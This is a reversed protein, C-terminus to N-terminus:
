AMCSPTCSVTPFREEPLVASGAGCSPACVFEAAAGMSGAVGLVCARLDRVQEVVTLADKVRQHELDLRKVSSSIRNATSSANSLMGNSIARTKAATTSLNARFLDLRGLERQLEKQSAILTDLQSTVTAEKAHLESLAAKIEAVSKASYVDPVTSASVSGNRQPQKDTGNM